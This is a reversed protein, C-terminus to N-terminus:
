TGKPWDQIEIVRAHRAKPPWWVLRAIAGAQEAVERLAQRKAPGFDNFPARATSKVEDFYTPEGAKMSLVDVCAWRPRCAFRGEAELRHM